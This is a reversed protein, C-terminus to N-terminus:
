PEGRENTYLMGHIRGAKRLVQLPVHCWLQSSVAKHQPAATAEQLEQNCKSQAPSLTAPKSTALSWMLGSCTSTSCSGSMSRATMRQLVAPDAATLASCGATDPPQLPGHGHQAGTLTKKDDGFKGRIKALEKDV